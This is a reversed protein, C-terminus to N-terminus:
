FTQQYFQFIDKQTYYFTFFIFDYISSIFYEIAIENNKIMMIDFFCFNYIFSKYFEYGLEHYDVVASYRIIVKNKELDKKKQQAEQDKTEQEKDKKKQESKSDKKEPESRASFYPM